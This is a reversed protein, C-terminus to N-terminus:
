LVMTEAGPRSLVIRRVYRRRQNRPGGLWGWDEEYARGKSDQGCRVPRDSDRTFATKGDHRLLFHDGPRATFAAAQTPDGFQRDALWLIGPFHPRLQLLLEPVLKAENTDGDSDTAMAVALGSALHLAVLAKG